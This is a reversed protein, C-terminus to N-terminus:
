RGGNRRQQVEPLWAAPYSSQDGAPAPENLAPVRALRDLLAATGAPDREWRRRYHDARGPVIKDDAIAAAIAQECAADSHMQEPRLASRRPAPRQLPQRNAFLAALADEVQAATVGDPLGLKASLAPLEDDDIYFRM